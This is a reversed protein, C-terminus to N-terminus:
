RNTERAAKLANWFGVILLAAAGISVFSAAHLLIQVFTEQWPTGSFGAGAIPTARSTGWLAALVLALWFAYLSTIAAWCTLALLRASLRVQPWVAGVVLLVLANQVGTLHASLGMRANAFYPIAAGTLLGLLFLVAGALLLIEKLPKTM